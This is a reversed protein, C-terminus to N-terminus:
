ICHDSRWTSTSMPLSCASMINKIYLNQIKLKNTWISWFQELGILHSKTIKEAMRVHTM